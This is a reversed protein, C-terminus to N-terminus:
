ATPCYGVDVRVGRHDSGPIDVRGSRASCLQPVTLVHDIRLLLSRWVASSKVSTPGAWSARAADHLEATLTRYAESRDASNLDGAVVVPLEEDDVAALIRRADGLHAAFTTTYEPGSASPSPKPLHLAYLMLARGGEGVRIRMGSVAGGVNEVLEIPVNAYVGIAPFPLNGSTDDAWTKVFTDFRGQLERHMARSLEPVVLVDAGDAVLSEAIAAAAEDSRPSAVNATVFTYPDVPEATSDPSWPLVVAVLGFVLLSAAPVAGAWRRTMASLAGIWALGIGIVLPLGIAVIEFVWAVDRVAFWLWPVIASAVVVLDIADIPAAGDRRRVRAIRDFPPRPIRM